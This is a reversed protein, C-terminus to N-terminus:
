RVWVFEVFVCVGLGPVWFGAAQQAWTEGLKVAFDCSPNSILGVNKVIFFSGVSKLAKRHSFTPTPSMNNWISCVQIEVTVFQPSVPTKSM